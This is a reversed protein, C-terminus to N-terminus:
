DFTDIPNNEIQERIENEIIEIKDFLTLNKISNAYKIAQKLYQELEWERNPYDHYLHQMMNQIKTTFNVVNM